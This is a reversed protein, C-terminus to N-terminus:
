RRNRVYVRYSVARKTKSRASYELNTKTGAMYLLWPTKMLEKGEADLFTTSLEVWIPRNPAFSLNKISLSIDLLGGDVRRERHNLANLLLALESDVYQVIPTDKERPSVFAKVATSRSCSLLLVPLLFLVPSLNSRKKPLTLLLFRGTIKITNQYKRAYYVMLDICFFRSINM